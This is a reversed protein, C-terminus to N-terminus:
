TGLLCTSQNGGCKCFIECAGISRCPCKKGCKNKCDCYASVAISQPICPNPNLLPQVIGDVKKWGYQLPDPLDPKAVDACVWIFAQFIARLAHQDFVMDTPPIRRLDAQRIYLNARVANLSTYEEPDKGYVMVTLERCATTISTILDETIGDKLQLCSHALKAKISSAKAKHFFSRKGKSYLFSTTDCGSISHLIPLMSCEDAELSQAIEHIPIMYSLSKIWLSCLKPFAQRHFVALIVVDTDNTLIVVNRYGQCECYKTHLILRTDAEEHNCALQSQQMETLPKGVSVVKTRDSFGGSLILTMGYPIMGSLTEWTSFLVQILESKSQGSRLVDKMNEIPMNESIHYVSKTNGRKDHCGSADKLPVNVHDCPGDYRDVIIHLEPCGPPCQALLCKLVRHAFEKTKEGPKPSITHLVVMIDVVFCTDSSDMEPLKDPWKDLGISEKLINLVPVKAGQRLTAQGKDQVEAISPPYSLIEHAAIDQVVCSDDIHQRKSLLARKLMMVENSLKEKAKRAPDIKKKMKNKDMTGFTEIKVIELKKEEGSLYKQVCDLGIEKANLLSRVVKDNAVESTMINILDTDDYAFPNTHNCITQIVLDKSDVQRKTVASTNEHHEKGKHDNHLLDHLNSCVKSTFPLTIFWKDQTEPKLVIGSLGAQGRQGKANANPGCELAMDTWIGSFSGDSRKVTFAGAMFKQEIGYKHHGASVIYPLMQSAATLHESWIGDREAHLFRLMIECMELYMSWLKHTKKDQRASKFEEMLSRAKSLKADINKTIEYPEQQDKHINELLEKLLKGIEFLVELDAAPEQDLCWKEFEDWWLMHLSEYVALHANLAQYYGHGSLVKNATGELLLKSKVFIEKLGSDAMLKGISGMFNMLLHFGGLRLILGKYKDPAKRRLGYSIEYIALDQTVVTYESGVQSSTRICIQLAEAVVAESTLPLQLFPMYGIETKGIKNPSITACFGKYGPFAPKDEVDIELLKTPLMRALSWCIHVNVSHDQRLLWKIDMEDTEPRHKRKVFQIEELSVKGLMTKKLARERRVKSLTHFASGDASEGPKSQFMCMSTVHLSKGDLTSLHSFDLNDIAFQSFCGTQMNEPLFYGDDDSHEQIDLAVSTLIRQMSDYSICHGLRNLVQIVDKSRTKHFVYLALSVHKATKKRSVAYAIDQGLKVISEHDESDMDETMATDNETLLCSLFNYLSSPLSSAMEEMTLNVKPEATLDYKLHKIDFKIKKAAESIYQEESFSTEHTVCSEQELPIPVYNEELNQQLAEIAQLLAGGTVVRNLFVYDDRGNQTSHFTIEDGFEKLLRRKIYRTEYASADVGKDDLHQKYEDRLTKAYFVKGDHLEHKVKSLFHRFAEDFKDDKEPSEDTCKRKLFSDMCRKHYKVEMAIMDIPVGDAHEVRFMVDKCEDHLLKAQMYLHEERSKTEVSLLKRGKRLKEPGGCIVCRTKYDFGKSPYRPIKRRVVSIEEECELKIPQVCNVDITQKPKKAKCTFSFLPEVVEM